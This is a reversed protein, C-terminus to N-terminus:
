RKVTTGPKGGSMFQELGEVGFVSAEVNKELVEQIKNQMGGTVDEGTLKLDEFEKLSNIEEVVERESNLVGKESTCFGAHGTQFQKELMALIEDGSLVTFGQDETVIGDGHLVPTFGERYMQRIQATMIETQPRRLAASSPHVPYAKVGKRHLRKVIESNLKKVARHTELAGERSGRHLNHERAHPHGFSGAGHIVIGDPNESLKQIVSDLQPSFTERSAKDTLLSGGIKLIYDPESKMSTSTKQTEETRSKEKM